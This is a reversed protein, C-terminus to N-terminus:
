LFAMYYNYDKDPLFFSAVKLIKKMRTYQNEQIEPSDSEDMFGFEIADEKSPPLIEINFISPM